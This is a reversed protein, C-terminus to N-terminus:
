QAAASSGSELALKWVNSDKVWIETLAVIYNTVNGNALINKWNCTVYAVAMDPSLISVKVDKIDVKQEKKGKNMRVLFGMVTDITTYNQGYGNAGILKDRSWFKIAADLDIKEFAGLYQAVHGKVAKEIDAKQADTLTQAQLPAAVLLLMLCVTIAISKM